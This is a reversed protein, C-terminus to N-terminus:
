DRDWIFIWLMMCFFFFVLLNLPMLICYFAIHCILWISWILISLYLYIKKFFERAYSKTEPSGRQPPFKLHLAVLTTFAIEKTAVSIPADLSPETNEMNEPRDTMLKETM